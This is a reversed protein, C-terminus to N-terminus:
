FEEVYVLDCACHASIFFSACSSPGKAEGWIANFEFHFFRLQRSLEYVESEVVREGLPAHERVAVLLMALFLINLRHVFKATWEQNVAIGRDAQAGIYVKHDPTDTIFEIRYLLHSRSQIMGLHRLIELRRLREQRHCLTRHVDVFVIGLVHLITQVDDRSFRIIKEDIRKHLSTLPVRARRVLALFHHVLVNADARFITLDFKM